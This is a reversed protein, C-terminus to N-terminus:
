EKTLDVMAQAEKRTAHMSIVPFRRLTAGLEENTKIVEKNTQEQVRQLWEVYEDVRCIKLGDGHPSKFVVWRRMKGETM